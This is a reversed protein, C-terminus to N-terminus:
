IVMLQIVDKSLTTCATQVQMKWLGVVLFVICGGLVVLVIAASMIVVVTTVTTDRPCTAVAAQMPAGDLCHPSTLQPVTLGCPGPEIVYAGGNITIQTKDERAFLNSLNAELSILDTADSSDFAGSLEVRFIVYDHATCTFHSEQVAFDHPLACQCAKYIIWPM